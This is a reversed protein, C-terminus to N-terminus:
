ETTVKKQKATLINLRKPGLAEKKGLPGLFIGTYM